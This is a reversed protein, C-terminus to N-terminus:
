KKRMARLAILSAVAFAMLSGSSPEPIAMLNLTALGDASGVVVKFDGDPNHTANPLSTINLATINFLSTVDTGVASSFGSSLSLNAAQAFVYSYSDTGTWGTFGSDGTVILNWRNVSTVGSMDLLGGVSLVDWTTGATGSLASIEWNYSSGGLVIASAATLTGPSNGPNLLGGSNLNVVGVSGLGGLSGGSNVTVAGATGNVKLLGGNVTALSSSAISGSTAVLLTGSNVNVTTAAATGSLTTNGGVNITGAGLNASITGGNLAYTAATLTGNTLTGATLALSGVTNSQGGLNVTGGGIGVTSSTGGITSAYNATVGDYTASGSILKLTGANVQITGNYSNTKYFEVTGAGDLLLTGTSGTFYAGGTNQTTGTSDNVSNAGVRITRGSDATLTKNGAGTLNIQLGYTTDVTDYSNFLLDTGAKNRITGGTWELTGTGSNQFGGQKRGMGIRQASLTGSDMYLTSTEATGRSLMVSYANGNGVNVTAGNIRLNSRPAAGHANLDIGNLNWTSGPGATLWSNPVVVLNNATLSPSQIAYYTSSSDTTAVNINATPLNIAGTVTFVNTSGYVRIGNSSNGSLNTITQNGSDLNLFVQTNGNLIANDSSTPVGSGGTWNGATTWQGADPGTYTVNAAWASSSLALLASAILSLAKKM